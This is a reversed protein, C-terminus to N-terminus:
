IGPNLNTAVDTRYASVAPGIGALLGALLVGAFVVAEFPHFSWPPIAFGVAAQVAPSALHIVWHGLVMGALGGMAAILLAEGVVISFITGRRAGLARMVAIDRRRDNMSNFLALGTGIASVIIILVAQAILIRDVNGVISLLKQIQEAPVAAQADDRDNIQKRLVFVSIPSYTQLALASIQGVEPEKAEGNGAEDKAEIVHGEIHYFSDLNIYIARDSPTGTPKLIGVVTWADHEHKEGDEDDRIGHTAVFTAGVKLGTARAAESGLVAERVETGHAHDHHGGADGPKQSSAEPKQDGVGAGHDGHGHGHHDHKDAKGKPAPPEPEPKQGGEEKGREMAEKMAELLEEEEFHFVRGEALEFKQNRQPEFETLFRDSTGVIRFGKYNDGVAFPVVLKVRQDKQLKEYLTYPINGPSADLNYVVNLVLQLPSGKAGIVLDFGSYGMRLREQSVHKITLIAIILAVGVAVSLSTLVTSLRRQRGNNWIIRALTM